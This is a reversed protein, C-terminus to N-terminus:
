KAEVAGDPMVRVTKWEYRGKEVTTQISKHILNSDSSRTRDLLLVSKVQGKNLGKFVIYDVPHFLVRADDPNLRRPGFVVDIRRIHASAQRRGKKRARERIEEERDDLALEAQDLGGRLRTLEDLWDPTSRARRFIRCDSLRFFMGSHPCIGFIQRQLGFFRLIDSGTM